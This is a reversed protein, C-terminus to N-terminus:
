QLTTGTTAPPHAQMAAPLAAPPSTSPPPSAPVSAPIAAAAAAVSTDTAVANAADIRAQRERMWADFEDASRVRGDEDVLRFRNEEQGYGPHDAIRAPADAAAVTAMPTAVGPDHAAPTSAPLSQLLGDIASP